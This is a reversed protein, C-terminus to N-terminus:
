GNPSYHNPSSNVNLLWNSTHNATSGFDRFFNGAYHYKRGNEIVVNYKYNVYMTSSTGIHFAKASTNGAVSSPVSSVAGKKGDDAYGSIGMALGDEFDVAKALGNFLNLGPVTVKSNYVYLKVKQSEVGEYVFWVIIEGAKNGVTIEANRGDTLSFDTIDTNGFDAKWEIDDVSASIRFVDGSGAALASETNISVESTDQMRWIPYLSYKEPTASTEFVPNDTLERTWGEFVFDHTSLVPLATGESMSVNLCQENLLTTGVNKVQSPMVPSYSFDYTINAYPQYYIRINDLYFTLFKGGSAASYDGPYIGNIHVTPFVTSGKNASDFTVGSLKAEDKTVITFTQTITKWTGRDAQKYFSTKDLTNQVRNQATGIKPAPTILTTPDSSDAAPYFIDYVITYKGPMDYGLGETNGYNFFLMFQAYQATKTVKLAKGSGGAPDNSLSLSCSAIDHSLKVSDIAFNTNDSNTTANDFTKEHVLTGYESVASLTAQTNSEVYEKEASDLTLASVCISSIVTFVALLATLTKKM